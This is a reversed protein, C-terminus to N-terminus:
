SDPAAGRVLVLEPTGNDGTGVDLTMDKTQKAIDRPVALVPEDEYFFKTDDTQPPGVEIRFEDGEKAVRFCSDGAPTARITSLSQGLHNLADKTVQM